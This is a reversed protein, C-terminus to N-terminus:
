RFTGSLGALPEGIRHLVPLDRGQAPLATQVIRAELKLIAPFPRVTQHANLPRLIVIVSRIVISRFTISPLGTIRPVRM